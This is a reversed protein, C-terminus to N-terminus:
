SESGGMADDNRDAAQELLNVQLESLNGGTPDEGGLATWLEGATVVLAEADDMRFGAPRPAEEPVEPRGSSGGFAWRDIDADIERRSRAQAPTHGAARIMAAIAEDQSLRPLEFPSRDTKWTVGDPDRRALLASYFPTGSPWRGAIVTCAYEDPQDGAPSWARMPIAATVPMAGVRAPVKGPDGAPVWLPGGPTGQVTGLHVSLGEQSSGTTMYVDFEAHGNRDRPTIMAGTDNGRVHVGDGAPAAAGYSKGRISTYTMWFKYM